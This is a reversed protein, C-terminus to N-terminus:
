ARQVVRVEGLSGNGPVPGGASYALV